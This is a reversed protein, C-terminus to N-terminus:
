APRISQPFRFLGHPDVTKKIRQLRPLNTGYYARQWNALHPDIYNVYAQGSVVPRMIARARDVWARASAGPGSSFYQISALQNRHV